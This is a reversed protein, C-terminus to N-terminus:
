FEMGYDKCRFGGIVVVREEFVVEVLDRFIRFSLRWNLESSIPVDGSFSACLKRGRTWPKEPSFDFM